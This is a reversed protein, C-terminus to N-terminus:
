RESSIILPSLTQGYLIFSEDGTWEVVRVQDVILFPRNYASRDDVFRNSRNGYKGEISPLFEALVGCRIVAEYLYDLSGAGNGNLSSIVLDPRPLLDDHRRILRM